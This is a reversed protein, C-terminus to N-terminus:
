VDVSLPMLPMLSENRRCSGMAADGSDLVSVLLPKRDFTRRVLFFIVVENFFTTGVESSAFSCTAPVTERGGLLSLTSETELATSPRTLPPGAGASVLATFRGGVGPGVHSERWGLFHINPLESRPQSVLFPNM